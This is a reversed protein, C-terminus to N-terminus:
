SLLENNVWKWASPFDPSTEFDFLVNWLLVARPKRWWKAWHPQSSTKKLLQFTISFFPHSIYIVTWATKNQTICFSIRLHTSDQIEKKKKKMFQAHCASQAPLWDNGILPIQSGPKMKCRLLVTKQCSENAQSGGILKLKKSKSPFLKPVGSDSDRPHQEHFSSKTFRKEFTINSQM